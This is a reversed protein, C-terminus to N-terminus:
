EEGHVYLSVVTSIATRMINSPTSCLTRCRNTFISSYSHSHFHQPLLLLLARRVVTVARCLLSVACRVMPARPWGCAAREACGIRETM